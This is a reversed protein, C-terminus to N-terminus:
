AVDIKMNFPKTKGPYLANKAQSKMIYHLLNGVKMCSNEKGSSKNTYTFM